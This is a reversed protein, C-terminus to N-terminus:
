VYEKDNEFSLMEYSDYYKYFKNGIFRTVKECTDLGYNEYAAMSDADKFYYKYIMTLPLMKNVKKDNEYVTTLVKHPYTYKMCSIAQHSLDKCNVDIRRLKQSILYLNNKESDGLIKRIQALWDSLYINKKSMSRRSNMVNHFEDLYIDFGGHKDKVDQWFEFNVGLINGKEDMKFLHEYKLRRALNHRVNFNVYCVQNRSVIEKVISLSKGCGIGGCTIIIM